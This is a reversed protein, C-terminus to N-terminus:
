SDTTGANKCERDYLVISGAVAVNLSHRANIAVTQHCQQLIDKPIGSDEAGLLYCCRRPHVFEQLFQGGEEREIAIIRSGFPISKKFDEFTDFHFLPIKSWTKFTDTLQKDYRKNITFIYSAGFTLASRWLTGINAETKTNIVGIGFHQDDDRDCAKRM